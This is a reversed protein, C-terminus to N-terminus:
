RQASGPKRAFRGGAVVELAGGGKLRRQEVREGAWGVEQPDAIPLVPGVLCSCHIVVWSLAQKSAKSEEAAMNAGM